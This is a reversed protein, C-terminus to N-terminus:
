FVVAALRDFGAYDKLIRVNQAIGSFLDIM